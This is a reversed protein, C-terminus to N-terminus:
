RTGMRYQLHLNLYHPILLPDVTFEKYNIQRPRLLDMQVITLPLILTRVDVPTQQRQAIANRSEHLILLFCAISM